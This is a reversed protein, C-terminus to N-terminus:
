DKETAVSRDAASRTTADAGRSEDDLARELEREFEDETLEGAVYRDRVQAVPDAEVAATEDASSPEDDDQVARMGAYGIAFLALYSLVAFSFMGFSGMGMTGGMMGDGMMGSGGSGLAWSGFAFLLAFGFTAALAIAGVTAAVRPSRNATM